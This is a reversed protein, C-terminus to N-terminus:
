LGSSASPTAHAPKAYPVRHQHQCCKPQHKIEIVAANGANANQRRENVFAAMYHNPTREGSFLRNQPQRDTANAHIRITTKQRVSLNKPQCASTWKCVKHCKTYAIDAHQLRCAKPAIIKCCCVKANAQKVQNWQATQVAPLHQVCYLALERFKAAKKTFFAQLAIRITTDQKPTLNAPVLWRSFHLLM